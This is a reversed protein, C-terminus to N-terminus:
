QCRPDFLLQAKGQAVMDMLRCIWLINTDCQKDRPVPVVITMSWDSAERFKGPDTM